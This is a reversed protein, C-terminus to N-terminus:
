ITAVIIPKRTPHRSGGLPEATVMLRKIGQLNGPVDVSASGDRSVSFLADTPQDQGNSGALWVQYIRGQPPAPLHHVVLVAHSGTRLVEAKATPTAGRVLAPVIQTGPESRTLGVVGVAIGCAAALAAGLPVLRPWRRRPAPRDAGAGAARLLQAESRVQQMIRGGLEEPMSLRPVERALSDVVPAFLALEERCIRCGDLHAEFRRSEEPELAGLVYASLELRAPEHDAGPNLATM